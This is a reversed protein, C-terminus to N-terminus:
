LSFNLRLSCNELAVMLTDYSKYYDESIRSIRGFDCGCWTGLCFGAASQLVHVEFAGCYECQLALPDEHEQEMFAFVVPTAMEKIRRIKTFNDM